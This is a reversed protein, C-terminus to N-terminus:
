CDIIGGAILVDNDYVVASQGCTAAKVYLLFKVVFGDETKIVHAADGNSASRIKVTYIKDEEFDTRSVYNVNKVNVQTQHTEEDYGVVVQNKVSDLAIVYLPRPAAIGLGKRQGITYHWFGNHHGLVKGESNVIDGVKDEVGLLDSYDGGYFDQSEDMDERHFGMKVDIKRVESKKLDGLPFLTRALQEQTLRYLFYSQDKKADAAKHLEYRNSDKNYIIKAYHGTAFYDFDIGSAKAFDVLAGFKIKANCWVCPNPTRGHMYEFRFNELVTSEYIDSCDLVRYEIGLKRCFEAIEEKDEAEAPSYCSNASVPAPYPSDKKWILMTVGTVDHGAQKLLYASVCSDIGGSLGVLVKM